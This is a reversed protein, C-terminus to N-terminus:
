RLLLRQRTPYGPEGAAGGSRPHIHRFRSRISVSRGPGPLITQHLVLDDLVADGKVVHQEDRIVGLDGRVPRVDRRPQGAVDRSLTGMTEAGISVTVSDAVPSRADGLLAPDADDVLVEGRVLLGQSTRFTLRLSFPTM